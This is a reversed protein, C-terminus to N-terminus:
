TPQLMINILDVVSKSYIDQFNDNNHIIIAKPVNKKTNEQKIITKKDDMVDNKRHTIHYYIHSFPLINSVAVELVAKVLITQIVM